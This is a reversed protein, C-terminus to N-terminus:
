QSEARRERLKSTPEFIQHSSRWGLSRFLESFRRDRLFRPRQRRPVLVYDVDLESIMTEVDRLSTRNEYNHYGILPTFWAIHQPQRMAVIVRGRERRRGELWGALETYPRGKDVKKSQRAVLDHVSTSGIWVGACIVLVSSIKAPFAHCRLLLVGCLFIAFLAPIGHRRHFYWETNFRLMAHVSLLAGVAFVVAFLLNSNEPQRLWGLGRRVDRARAMAMIAVTPVALILLYQFTHFQRSYSQPHEISFAAALGKAREFPLRWLSSPQQLTPLQSLLDNMRVAEWSVLAKLPVADAMSALQLYRPVLLVAASLACGASMKLYDLRRVSAVLNFGLVPVVALALLIL